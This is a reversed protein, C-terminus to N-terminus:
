QFCEPRGVGTCLQWVTNLMAFDVNPAAGDKVGRNRTRAHTDSALATLSHLSNSACILAVVPLFSIASIHVHVFAHALLHVARHQRIHLLM